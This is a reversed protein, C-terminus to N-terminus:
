YYASQGYNNYPTSHHYGGRDHQYDYANMSGYHQMSNNHRSSEMGQDIMSDYPSDSYRRNRTDNSHYPYQSPNQQQHKNHHSNYQQRQNVMGGGGSSSSSANNYQLYKKYERRRRLWKRVFSYGAYSIGIMISYRIAKLRRRKKKEEDSLQDYQMESHHMEVTKLEHMAALAQDIMAIAQHYLQTLAQTNM